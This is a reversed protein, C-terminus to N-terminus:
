EEVTLEWVVQGTRLHDTYVLEYQEHIPVSFAVEGRTMRDPHIQGGLIGKTEISSTSNYAFGDEDVLTLKYTSFETVEEKINTISLDVIVIQNGDEIQSDVTRVNNLVMELGNIERMLGSDRSKTEKSKTETQAFTTETKSENLINFSVLGILCVILGMLLYLKGKMM